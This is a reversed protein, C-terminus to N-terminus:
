WNQTKCCRPFRGAHLSHEPVQKRTEEYDSLYSYTIWSNFYAYMCFLYISFVRRLHSPRFSPLFCAPAWQSKSVPRCSSVKLVIYERCIWGWQSFSDKDSVSLWHRKLQQIPVMFNCPSKPHRPHNTDSRCPLAWLLTNSSNSASENLYRERLPMGSRM